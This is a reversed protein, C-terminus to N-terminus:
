VGSRRRASIRGWVAWATGGIILVLLVASLWTGSSAYPAISQASDVVTQASDMDALAAIGAVGSVAAGSVTKTMPIPKPPDPDVGSDWVIGQDLISNNVLWDRVSFSPCEKRRDLDRHGVIKAHPFQDRLHLILRKLEKWQAPTFNNEAILRTGERRVGGVLCIGISRANHGEAHAGPTQMARGVELLGNRRIVFHYGIDRWGNGVPKPDTHWKRIEEVGVDMEPPTAACHIVILDIKRM